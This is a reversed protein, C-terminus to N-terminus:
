QGPKVPKHISSFLTNYIYKQFNSICTGLRIFSSPVRTAGRLMGQLQNEQARSEGLPASSETVSAAWDPPFVDSKNSHWLSKHVEMLMGSSILIFVKHAKM